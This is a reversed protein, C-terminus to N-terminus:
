GMALTLRITNKAAQAAGINAATLVLDYELGPDKTLGLLQWLPQVIQDPTLLLPVFDVYATRAAVFSVDNGWLDVDVVGGGNAITQYLGIDVAAAAGWAENVIEIASVRSYSPIRHFRYTSNNNDAAAKALTSISEVTFGRHKFANQQVGAEYATILDSNLAVVAM